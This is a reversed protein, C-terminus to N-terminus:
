QLSILLYKELYRHVHHEVVTFYNQVSPVRTKRLAIYLLELFQTKRVVIHM